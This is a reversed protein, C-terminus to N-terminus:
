LGITRAIVLRSKLSTSVRYQINLEGERSPWFPSLFVLDLFVDCPIDPPPVKASGVVAFFVLM